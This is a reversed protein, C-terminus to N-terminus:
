YSRAALGKEEYVEIGPIECSKKEARVVANLKKEDLIWFRAPIKSEDKIRWKWASQISTGARHQTAVNIPDVHAVEAKAIMESARGLDGNVLARDAEDLLRQKQAEELRRARENEEAQERLRREAQAAEYALIAGKLRGELLELKELPVAFLAMISKKSDDLPRTLSLRKETLEKVKTKTWRLQNTYSSLEVDNSIPKLEASGCVEIAGQINERVENPIEM